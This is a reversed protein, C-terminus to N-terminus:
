DNIAELRRATEDLIYEVRDAGELGIPVDLSESILKARETLKDWPRKDRYDDDSLIENSVLMATRNLLIVRNDAGGSGYSTIGDYGLLIAAASLGNPYEGANDTSASGLMLDLAEVLDATEPNSAWERRLTILPDSGENVVSGPNEMEETYRKITDRMPQLRIMNASPSIAGRIVGGDKGAYTAADHAQPNGTRIREPAADEDVAFYLGAGDVGEGIPLNGNEIHRKQMELNGGRSLPVAGSVYIVQELEEETVRLNKGDFGRLEILAEILERGAYGSGTKSTQDYELQGSGALSSLLERRKRLNELATVIGPNNRLVDALEDRHEPSALSDAIQHAQVALEDIEAHGRNVGEVPEHDDVDIDPNKARTANGVEATKDKLAAAPTNRTRRTESGSGVADDAAQLERTVQDRVEKRREVAEKRERQQEQLRGFKEAFGDPLEELIRDIRAQVEEPAPVEPAAPADSPNRPPPGGRQGEPMANSLDAAFKELTRVTDLDDLLQERLEEDIDDRESIAARLKDFDSPEDDDDFWNDFSASRTSPLKRYLNTNDGDTMLEKLPRGDVMFDEGLADYVRQLPAQNLAEEGFTWGFTSTAIARYNPNGDTGTPLSSVDLNPLNQKMTSGPQGPLPSGSLYDYMQSRTM